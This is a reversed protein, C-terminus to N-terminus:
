KHSGGKANKKTATRPAAAAQPGSEQPAPAEAGAMQQRFTQIVLGNDYHTDLYKIKIQRDKEYGAVLPALSPTNSIIVNQVILGRDPHAPDYTMYVTGQPISKCMPNLKDIITTQHSKHDRDYYDVDIAWLVYERFSTDRIGTVVTAKRINALVLQGKFAKRQIIVKDWNNELMKYLFFLVVSVVVFIVFVTTSRDALAARNVIIAIATGVTLVMIIFAILNLFRYIRLQM